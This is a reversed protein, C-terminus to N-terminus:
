KTKKKENKNGNEDLKYVMINWYYFLEDQSENMCFIMIKIIQFHCVHIPEKHEIFQNISNDLIEVNEENKDNNNNNIENGNKDIVVLNKDLYMNNNDINESNITQDTTQCTISQLSAITSM